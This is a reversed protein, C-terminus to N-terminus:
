ADPVSADFELLTGEVTGVTMVFFLGVPIQSDKPHSIEIM